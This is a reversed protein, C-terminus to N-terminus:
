IKVLNIVGEQGPRSVVKAKGEETEVIAGKTIIGRRAYERNAPNEIVRLIKVKKATKNSYDFMIGENAALLRVKKNGGRGRVIKKKIEGLLIPSAPAVVEYRRTDRWKGKKGGTRKRGDDGIKIGM